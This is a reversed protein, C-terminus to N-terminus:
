RLGQIQELTVEFQCTRCEFESLASIQMKGTLPVSTQWTDMGFNFAGTHSLRTFLQHRLGVSVGALCPTSVDLGSDGYDCTVVLLLVNEPQQISESLQILGGSSLSAHQYDIITPAPLAATLAVALAIVGAVTPLRNM